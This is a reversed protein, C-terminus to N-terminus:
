EGNAEFFNLTDDAFMLHSVIVEENNRSGMLFGLLLGRNMTVFMMRSLVEMIVVFLILSLPDGQRLGCSNSFFGSPSGNILISFAIYLHLTSDLRAM